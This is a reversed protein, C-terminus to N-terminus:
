AQYCGMWKDGMKLGETGLRCHGQGSITLSTPPFALNTRLDFPVWVLRRNCSNVVWGEKDITWLDLTLARSSRNTSEPSTAADPVEQEQAGTGISSVDWFRITGGSSCSVVHSGDPSFHVGWVAGTHGRLPGLIRKGNQGDWVCVTGDRSGSAVYLGNPSVCVSYVDGRHSWDDDGCVALQEGTLGDWIRVSKDSSGSVFRMGDAWMEVSRVYNTHAKIPGVLTDGTHGDVVRIRGDQSGCVVRRGDSSM